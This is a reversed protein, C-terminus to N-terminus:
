AVELPSEADSMDMIGNEAIDQAKTFAKVIGLGSPKAEGRGTFTIPDINAINFLSKRAVALAAQSRGEQAELDAVQSELKEVQSSKKAM